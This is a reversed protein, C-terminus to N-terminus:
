GNSAMMGVGGGGGGDNDSTNGEGWMMVDDSGQDYGCEASLLRIVKPLHPPPPPPPLPPPTASISTCTNKVVKFPEYTDGGGGECTEVEVRM